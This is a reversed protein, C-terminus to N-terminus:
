SEFSSQIGAIYKGKNVFSAIEQSRKQISYGREQSSTMSGICFCNLRM